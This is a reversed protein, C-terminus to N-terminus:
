DLAIHLFGLFFCLGLTLTIDASDRQLIPLATNPAEPKGVFFARKRPLFSASIASHGATEKIINESFYGTRRTM